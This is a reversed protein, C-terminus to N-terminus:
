APLGGNNRRRRWFNLGFLGGCAAILGPLGAGVIPGPVPVGVGIGSTGFPSGVIEQYRVFFNDLTIQTSANDQFDLSFTGTAFGANIDLGASQAGACSNENPTACFDVKNLGGPATGGLVRFPFFGTISTLTTLEPNTDFGFGGVASATIPASSTNDLSYAFVWTNTSTTVTQLTLNLTASLGPQPNEEVIGNFTFALTDGENATTLIVASAPSTMVTGALLVAALITRKM